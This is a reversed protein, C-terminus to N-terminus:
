PTSASGEAPRTTPLRFAFCCGAGLQSECWITGGVRAMLEMAVALGYGTSPEGATPRPTLQAGRQFLRTQDEPSLGPGEDQVSCVVAAPEVAVRLWVKKGPPSYKIANSVLNDLVAAVAVSDTWVLASPVASESLIQIQKKEATRQYYDRAWQTLMVLDVERAVFRSDNRPTTNMLRAVTYTMLETTHMLGGLLAHVEANAVSALHLKLLETTAATVTLFNNLAHAAFVVTGTEFAPLKEMEVLAEELEAKAKILRASIREKANNM